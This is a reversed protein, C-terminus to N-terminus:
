QGQRQARSEQSDDPSLDTNLQRRAEPEPQQPGPRSKNNPSLRGFRCETPTFNPVDEEDSSDKEHQRGQVSYRISQGDPFPAQHRRRYTRQEQDALEDPAGKIILALNTCPSIDSQIQSGAAQEM